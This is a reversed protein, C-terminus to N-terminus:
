EKQTPGFFYCHTAMNLLFTKKGCDLSMKEADLHNNLEKFNRYYCGCHGLLQLFYFLVM